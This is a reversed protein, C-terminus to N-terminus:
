YVWQSADVVAGNNRHGLSNFVHRDIDYSITRVSNDGFVSQIGHSHASGFSICETPLGGLYTLGRIRVDQKPVVGTSRTIDYDFGDTWGRDDGAFKRVQGGFVPGGGDYNDVPIFKESLMLTKSTGDRVDNFGILSGARTRVIMGMYDGKVLRFDNGKWFDNMARADLNDTIDPTISDAPTASAYDMMGNLFGNDAEAINQTPGRRSPCYFLSPTLQKVQEWDSMGLIASEEMFPLIQFAWGVPLDDVPPLNNPAFWPRNLIQEGCYYGSNEDGAWSCMGGAPLLKHNTHYNHIAQGLQRLHNVCETRRGSERAAQVAPLLLAVLVGIIAIVVLLEVLTFASTSRRSSM